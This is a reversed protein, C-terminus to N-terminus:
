CERSHQWDKVSQAIRRKRLERFAAVVEKRSHCELVQLMDINHRDAAISYESAHFSHNWKMGVFCKYTGNTKRGVYGAFSRAENSTGEVWLEDAIIM